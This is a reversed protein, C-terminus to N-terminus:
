DIEGDNLLIYFMRHRMGAQIEESADEEGMERRALSM